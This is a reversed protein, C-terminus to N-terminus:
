RRRGLDTEAELANEYHELRGVNGDSERVLAIVDIRWDAQLQDTEELYTWAARQLRRRKRATLAEEPLGYSDTSRAKVEVFVLTSEHEAIIDLEGVAVRWNRDLIRYGAQKLHREAQREGWAGLRRASM